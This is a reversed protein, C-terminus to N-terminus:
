NALSGVPECAKCLTRLKSEINILAGAQLMPARLVLGFWVGLKRAPPLILYYYERGVLLRRALRPPM